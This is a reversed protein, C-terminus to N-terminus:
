RKVIQISKVNVVSRVNMYLKRRRPQVARWLGQPTLAEIEEIQPLFQHKM